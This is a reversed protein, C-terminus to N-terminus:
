QCGDVEVVEVESLDFTLIESSLEEPSFDSTDFSSYKKDGMVIKHPSLCYTQKESSAYIITKKFYDLVFSIQKHTDTTNEFKLYLQPPKKKKPNDLNRWKYYVVVGDKKTLETFQKQAMSNTGAFVFLALVLIIRNYKM